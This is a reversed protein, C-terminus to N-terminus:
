TCKEMKSARSPNNVFDRHVSNHLKTCIKAYATSIRQSHMIDAWIDGRRVCVVNAWRHFEYDDVWYHGSIPWLGSSGAFFCSYGHKWLSKMITKLEYKPWPCDQHYEFQLIRVTMERLISMAGQLVLPDNGETDIKLIDIVFQKKEGRVTQAEKDKHKNIITLKDPTRRKIVGREIFDNVLSEVTILKIKYPSTPSIKCGEWFSKRCDVVGIEGTTNSMAGHVLNLKAAKKKFSGQVSEVMDISQKNLDVGIFVADPPDNKHILAHPPAMPMSHKCDKCMGCNSINKEGSDINQKTTYDNIGDFWSSSTIKLSPFWANQWLAFNYGKNFGIDIFVKEESPDSHALLPLYVDSGCNIADLFHAGNDSTLCKAILAGYCEDGVCKTKASFVGEQCLFLFVLLFSLVM